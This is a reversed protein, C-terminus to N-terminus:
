IEVYEGILKKAEEVIEDDDWVVVVIGVRPDHPDDEPMPYSLLRENIMYMQGTKVHPSRIVQTIRGKMTSVVM